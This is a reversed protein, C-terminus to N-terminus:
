IAKSIWMKTILDHGLHLVPHPIHQLCSVEEKDRQQGILVIIKKGLYVITM